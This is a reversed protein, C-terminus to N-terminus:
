SLQSRSGQVTVFIVRVVYTLPRACLRCEYCLSPMRIYSCYCYYESSSPVNWCSRSIIRSQWTLCGIVNVSREDFGRIWEACTVSCTGPEPVRCRVRALVWAGPGQMRTPPRPVPRACPRPPQGPLAEKLIHCSGWLIHLRRPSSLDAVCIGTPSAGASRPGSGKRLGSPM